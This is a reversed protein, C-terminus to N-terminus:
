RRTRAARATASTARWTASSTCCCARSTSRTSRRTTRARRGLERRRQARPRARRGARARVFDTQVGLSARRAGVLLLRRRQLRGARGGQREDLAAGEPGLAVGDDQRAEPLAHRRREAPLEASSLYFSTSAAAASARSRAQRPRPRGDPADGDLEQVPGIPEEAGNAADGTLYAQWYYHGPRQRLVSTARCAGPRSATSAGADATEDLWTGDAGTLLGDDDVDDDRRLRARRRQRGARDTRVAFTLPAGRSISATPRPTTSRRCRPRRPRRRRSGRAAVSSLPSPRSADRRMAMPRSARRPRSPEGQTGNGATGRTRRSERSASRPRNSDRVRAAAATCRPGPGGRGRGGGRPSAPGARPRRRDLELDVARRRVDGAAADLEGVREVREADGDGAAAREVDAGRGAAEGVAQELAAGGM